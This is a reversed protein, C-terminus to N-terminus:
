YPQVAAAPIWGETYGGGRGLYGVCQLKGNRPGLAVLDDQLLYAKLKCGAAGPDDACSGRIFHAKAVTVQGKPLDPYPGGDTRCNEALAPTALLSAILVLAPLRSTTM